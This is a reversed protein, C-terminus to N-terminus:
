ENYKTIHEKKIIAPNGAILCESKNYKGSVLSMAGVVCGNQIRTGKLVVARTGIWVNNGIFIEKARNNVIGTSTDVVNHFDTDMVLTNWSTLVNDGIVISKECIITMAANNLFKEGILLNGGKLICIRAGQGFIASGKITMNGDIELISREYKIDYVGVKNFGVKILGPRIRDSILTVGGRLSNLKTNYRVLIPLKIAQRVPLLRMNCYVSLPLSFIYEFFDTCKM